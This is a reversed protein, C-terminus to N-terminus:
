KLQDLLIRADTLDPTNFGETFWSYLDALLRRAQEEKKQEKWLRGISTAARLEFSKAGQRSATDLAKRFCAEAQVFNTTSASLLLEGMLRHLEPEIFREGTSEVIAQASDLLQMAEEFKGEKGLAEALIALWYPQMLMSGTATYDSLARRMRATAGRSEGQEALAWAGLLGGMASWFPLGQESGLSLAEEAYEFTEHAKRCFHFVLSGIGLSYALSFPHSLSRALDLAQGTAELAQDPYGLLWSVPAKYSLCAVGPDQLARRSGRKHTDYMAIGKDLQENAAELEGLHASTQGLMYHGWLKPAPNQEMEALALFQNGLRHATQFEARMISVGWLGRLVTYFRADDDLERCLQGAKVYAKEVDPDGYGKAVMLAPGLTIQLDLEKRARESTEPLSNIMGLAKNLHDIAEPYASRRIAIEGAKQWYPIAQEALGAKTFHHALVEPNEKVIQPFFDELVQAIKKHYKEQTGKFLSEYCVGQILAHKFVYTLEPHIGREYLLESDKLITLRQQLQKEPLGAVLKLLDHGFEREIVSAIQLVERVPDSLLDIRAMIVDQITSPIAFHDVGTHLGYTRDTREIIGMEMLSRVFEEIFFPVGETKRLILDQLDPAISDGRFLEAVMAQSERNTLRNLAVQSHFSKGRWIDVFEPRYTFIMLIRSGAISKILYNAAEESSKDMWHLDEFALILPIRESGKLVIRQLAGCIRAKKEESSILLSDIGSEKICLLELIYPLTSAEDVGLITLERKVKETVKEDSDGQDVRFNSKLIDIIPHYAVGRGYCLCKGELFLIDENAVAKRFEYLLRSKGVGAEGMISVAQCRGEKARDFSELLLELERERGIFRSLGREASVDFRTRRTSPAIVRYVRMLKQKGKIDKEGLAEFRFYGETLKFTEETVCTTGPEALQEMRAAMNISDGVATFHLRLDDGIAGVVVPGSNIGIRLLIPPIKKKEHKMKECFKTMERHIALSSQIARQPANELAIPAGFLALVGDGRLENVTGEYRHIERIVIELVQDMLSFTEEPGLEETLLTYGTMDVFMITVHRREGQIKDGQALIKETLNDPLYKRIRSLKEDFSLDKPLTAEKPPGLSWGCEPCFKSDPPINRGCGHCTFELRTGCEKCFKFGDPLEIECAPCKM